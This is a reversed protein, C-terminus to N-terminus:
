ELKEVAEELDREGPTTYIQTTSLDSHGLLAAVKEITVGKDILSKAFTHRLMHASLEGMGAAKAFRKVARQVTKELIGENSQNIFFSKTQVDPRVDLYAQLAERAKANLPIERRKGGKGQRIVVTGKRETITVDNLHLEVVEKVRLGANLLLYVICKDRLHAVQLRPYRNIAIAVENDIARLLAAQQKHDLWRPALSAQRVKTVGIAPNSEKLYGARRAWDAFAALSALRRNITKPKAEKDLLHQKYARVAAATLNEFSLPEAYVSTFWASFLRVDSLYGRITIPSREKAVLAADFEQLHQDLIEHETM